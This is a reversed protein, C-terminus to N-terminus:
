SFLMVLGLIQEDNITFVGSCVILTNTQHKLGNVWYVCSTTEIDIRRRYSMFLQHM